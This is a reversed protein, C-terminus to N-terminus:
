NAPARNLAVYGPGPSVNSDSGRVNGSSDVWYYDYNVDDPIDYQAGTRPDVMTHVYGNKLDWSGMIINSIETNTRTAIQSVEAATQSQRALWQPNVTFTNVMEALVNGAANAIAAPAVFGTMSDAYWLATYATTRLVTVGLFAYATMQMGNRQCSFTADAYTESMGASTAVTELQQAVDPRARNSTVKVGTCVDKLQRTGWSVVYQQSTQLPEVIYYTGSANYVSGPAFGVMPTAYAPENPDGIDLITNGDPSVADAWARFQLADYRKLGGTDKWGAPMQVQFAGENPDTLVQWHQVVPMAAVPQSGGPAPPKFGGITGGTAQAACFSGMSVLCLAVIVQRM